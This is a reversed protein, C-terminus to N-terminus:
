SFWDPFIRRAQALSQETTAILDPVAHLETGDSATAMTTLWLHRAWLVRERQPASIQLQELGWQVILEKQGEKGVPRLGHLYLCGQCLTYLATHVHTCALPPRLPHNDKAQQLAHIAQSLLCVARYDDFRTTRLQKSWVLLQLERTPARLLGVDPEHHPHVQSAIMDMSDALLAGCQLM